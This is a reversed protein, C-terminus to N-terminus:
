LHVTNNSLLLNNDGFFAMVSKGGQLGYTFGSEDKYDIHSIKQPGSIRCFRQVDAPLTPLFDRLFQSLSTGSRLWSM